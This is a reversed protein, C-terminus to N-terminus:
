TSTEIGVAALAALVSSTSMAIVSKGFSLWRTFVIQVIQQGKENTSSKVTELTRKLKPSYKLCKAFLDLIGIYKQLYPVKKAAKECALQLKKAM